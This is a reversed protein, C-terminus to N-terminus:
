TCSCKMVRMKKMTTVKLRTHDDEDIHLVEMDVLRTPACCVDPVTSDKLQHRAMSQFYAHNNAVNFRFPCSGDCFGADFRNPQIIYEYGGLERFDIVWKHRCCKKDGNKHCITKKPQSMYDRAVDLSKDKRRITKRKARQMMNGILNLTPNNSTSSNLKNHSTDTKHNNVIQIGYKSCSECFIEIDLTKETSSLWQTVATNVDLQIWKNYTFESNDYSVDSNIPLIIDKTFLWVRENSDAITQYVHLRLTQKNTIIKIENRNLNSNDTTNHHHNNHQHQQHHNHHHHNSKKRHERATIRSSKLTLKTTLDLSSNDDSTDDEQTEMSVKQMDFINENTLFINLTSEEIESPLEEKDPLEFNLYTLDEENVSRKQRQRAFRKSRDLIIVLYFFLLLCILKVYSKRM